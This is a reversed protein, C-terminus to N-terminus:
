LICEYIVFVSSLMPLCYPSVSYEVASFWIEGTTHSFSPSTLSLACSNANSRLECLFVSFTVLIGNNFGSM